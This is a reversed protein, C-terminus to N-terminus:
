INSKDNNYLFELIAIDNLTDINLIPSTVFAVTNKPFFSKSSVLAKTKILYYAGTLKYIKPLSQRPLESSAGRIFSKLMGRSDIVKLKYPHPEELLTVSVVANTNNKNLLVFLQEIEEVKRPFVAPQLLLVNEYFKGITALQNLVYLVVDVTKANDNSLYEPRLGVSNAGAKLAIEEYLASDTSIYVDSVLPSDKVLDVAWEILTKGQVNYINKDKVGKSGSRAPIIAVTTM